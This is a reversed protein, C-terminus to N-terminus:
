EPATKKTRVVNRRRSSYAGKSIHRDDGNFVMGVIKSTELLNLAEAVLKRPTRHAGVVILFGDVWKGLVRSDPVSILPPTDVLVYDYQARAAEFLEGVRPSKLIEYPASSRRGATIVSLNLHPQM